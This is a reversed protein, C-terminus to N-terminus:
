LLTVSRSLSQMLEFGDWVPSFELAKGIPVIRDIGNPQHKQIMEEFQTKEFGFYALTQHKKSVHLFIEDLTPAHYEYLLGSGCHLAEYLEELSALAVTHLHQGNYRSIRGADNAALAFLAAQKNMVDAAELPLPRIKEYAGLLTMFRESAAKCTLADGVWVMMRISSCAQQGFWFADNYFDQILKSPEILALFASANLLAFSFKDAFTLETATPPLPVARITRITADGGWIVRTDCRASLWATIADDPVYQVLLTRAAIAESAGFLRQLTAILLRNQVSQRSSLRIINRNGMLMSLFWSYIFITDVNSPAFHLVTGRALHLGEFGEFRKKLAEIHASRMWFGLAVMEPYDRFATILEKSFAAIFAVAEPAFPPLTGVGEFPEQPLKSPHLSIIKSENM